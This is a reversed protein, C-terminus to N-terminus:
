LTFCKIKILAKKNRMLFRLNHNNIIGKKHFFESKKLFVFFYLNKRM